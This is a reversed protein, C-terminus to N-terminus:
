KDEQRELFSSGWLMRNPNFADVRLRKIYFIFDGPELHFERKQADWQWKGRAIQPRLTITDGEQVPWLETTQAFYTGNTELRLTFAPVNNTPLSSFPDWSIPKRSPAYSGVPATSQDVLPIEKQQASGSRPAISALAIVCFISSFVSRTSKMYRTSHAVAPSLAPPACGANGLEQALM